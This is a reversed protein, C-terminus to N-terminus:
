ARSSPPGSPRALIPSDAGLKTDRVGVLGPATGVEVCGGNDGGSQSADRREAARM